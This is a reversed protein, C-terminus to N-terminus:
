PLTTYGAAQLTAYLTAYTFTTAGFDVTNQSIRDNSLVDYAPFLSAGGPVAIGGINGVPNQNALIDNNWSIGDITWWIHGNSYDVAVGVTGGVTFIGLTTLPSGNFYVNGTGNYFGISNTDVGLFNNNGFTFSSNAIGVGYGQGSGGIGVNTVAMEWYCKQGSTVAATAIGAYHVSANDNVSATLNAGM